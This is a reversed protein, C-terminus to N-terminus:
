MSGGRWELETMLQRRGGSKKEERSEIRREEGGDEDNRRKGRGDAVKIRGGKLSTDKM